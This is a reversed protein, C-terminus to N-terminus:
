RFFLLKFALALGGHLIVVAILILKSIQAEARKIVPWLNRLLFVMSVAFGVGVAAWRIINSVLMFRFIEFPAISAM